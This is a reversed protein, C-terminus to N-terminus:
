PARNASHRGDVGNCSSPALPANKANNRAVASPMLSLLDEADDDEQSMVFERTNTTWCTLWVVTVGWVLGAVVDGAYHFGLTMTSMTIGSSCMVLVTRLLWSSSRWSLLTLVWPLATHLSPFCDFQYRLHEIAFQYSPLARVLSDNVIGVAQPGAVPLLVYMMYGGYLCLVIGRRVRRFDHESELRYFCALVFAPLFYYLGYFAWMAGYVAPYGALREDFWEHALRGILLRDFSQVVTDLPSLGLAVTLATAHMHKLGEYAMLAAVFPLWLRLLRGGSQRCLLVAIPLGIMLVALTRLSLTSARLDEFLPSGRLLSLLVLLGFFLLGLWEDLDRLIRLRWSRNM